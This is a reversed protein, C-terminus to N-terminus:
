QAVLSISISFPSPFAHFCKFNSLCLRMKRYFFNGKTASYFNKQLFILTTVLFFLLEFTVGSPVWLWHEIVVQHSLTPLSLPPPKLISLFCIDIALEYQYIPFFDCYQLTILRWNLYTITKLSFIFHSPYNHPLSGM